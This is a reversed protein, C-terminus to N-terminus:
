ENINERGRYFASSLAISWQMWIKVFMQSTVICTFRAVLFAINCLSSIYVSYMHKHQTEVNNPMIKPKNELQILFELVRNM